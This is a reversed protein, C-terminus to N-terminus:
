ECEQKHATHSRYHATMYKKGDEAKKDYNVGTVSIKCARDSCSFTLRKKQKQSFYYTRAEDISLSRGLEDCYAFIVKVNAM